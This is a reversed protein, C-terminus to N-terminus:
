GDSFAKKVALGEDYRGVFIPLSGECRGLVEEIERDTPLATELVGRGWKTIIRATIFLPHLNVLVHQIGFRDKMEEIHRVSRVAEDVAEMPSMTSVPMLM